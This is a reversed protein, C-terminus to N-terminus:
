IQFFACLYHLGFTSHLAGAQKKHKPILRDENKWAFIPFIQLFM